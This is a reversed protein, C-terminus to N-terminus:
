ENNQDGSLYKKASERILTRRDISTNLIKKALQEKAKSDLEKIAKSAKFYRELNSKLAKRVGARSGIAQGVTTLANAAHPNSGLTWGLAGGFRGATSGLKGSATDTGGLGFVKFNDPDAFYNIADLEKIIQTSEKGVENGYQKEIADLSQNLIPDHGTRLKDFANLTSYNDKFNEGIVQLDNWNSPKLKDAENEVYATSKNLLENQKVALKAKKLAQFSEDLTSGFNTGSVADIEKFMKRLYEGKQNDKLAQQLTTITKEETDVKRAAFQKLEVLKKYKGALESNGGLTHEDLMSSMKRELGKFFGSLGDSTAPNINASAANKNYKAANAAESKLRQFLEISVKEPLKVFEDPSTLKASGLLQDLSNNVEKATQSHGNSYSDYSSRQLIDATEDGNDIVRYSKGNKNFWQTSNDSEGILNQGYINKSGGDKANGGHKAFGQNFNIDAKNATQRVTYEPSSKFGNSAIKKYSINKTNNLMFKNQFEKTLAEALNDKAETTLGNGIPATINKIQDDFYQYIEGTSIDSGESAMKSYHESIDDFSGQITQKMSKPLMSMIENENLVNSSSQAMIDDISNAGSAILQRAEDTIDLNKIAESYQNVLQAEQDNLARGAKHANSTISNIEEKLVKETKFKDAISISDKIGQQALGQNLKAENVKSMMANSKSELYHGIGNKEADTIVNPNDRLVNIADDTVGTLFKVGGKAAKKAALATKVLGKVASPALGSIAGVTLTDKVGQDLKNDIGIAKGLGQRLAESAAGTAANAAIGTLPTGVLTGGALAAGQAIGSGIDYVIDGADNLIDKSFFGTDPDLVKWESANKDKILVRDGFPKIDLNPHKEQLYKASSETGQGFNKVVARDMFSIDPHMEENIKPNDLNTSSQRRALERRALERIAAQRMDM